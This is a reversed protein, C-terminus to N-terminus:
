GKWFPRFTLRFGFGSHNFIINEPDNAYTAPNLKENVIAINGLKKEGFAYYPEFDIPGIIIKIFPAIYTSTSTYLHNWKDEDSFSNPNETIIKTSIKPFCFDFRAGPIISIEEDGIPIGISINMGNNKVRLYRKFDEGNVTGTAIRKQGRGIFGIDFYAGYVFGFNITFGDLNNFPKMEKNLYNRTENYRNVIYNVGKPGGFNANYGIEFNFIQQSFNSFSFFLLLALLVLRKM